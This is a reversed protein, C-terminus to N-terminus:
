RLQAAIQRLRPLAHTFFMKYSPCFYNLAMQGDLLPERDRRCGGRCIYFFECTKCAEDIGRSEEVFGSAERQAEIEELSDTVYNGLRLEDLVYFDCPYVGGDAEIILQHGCIGVLGCSEPAQGVLMGLLNEFYRIYIFRGHIVDQYWLDFLECLFHGYLEPTLSYPHQGREEGLPDLCPIYQQYLLDKERYFAYIKGINQATDANVVTLLNFEVKHRRLIQISEWVRSFSGNREADIRYMDHYRRTGDLSIGVLFRHKAFFAAWADDITFGNTQIAHHIRLKKLNYNEEFRILDEFFDLGRLTPEGGQFAFSCEEEAEALTKRVIAELTDTKMMGFSPLERNAAVDAYFCYGCRLNCLSSSPKILLNIPPM